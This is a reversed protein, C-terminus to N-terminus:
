GYRDCSTQFLDRLDRWIAYSDCNGVTMELLWVPFSFKIVTSRNGRSYVILAQLYWCLHFIRESIMFFMHFTRMEPLNVAKNHERFNLCIKNKQRRTCCLELEYGLPFSASRLGRVWKRLNSVTKQLLLRWMRHLELSCLLGAVRWRRWDM